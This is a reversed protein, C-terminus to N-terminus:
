NLICYFVDVEVIHTCVCHVQCTYKQVVETKINIFPFKFSICNVEADIVTHGNDMTWQLHNTKDMTWQGSYTIPKTWQGNDVTPSRNQGNDVTWQGNDVTISASTLQIDNLNGKIVGVTSLPCHVFGIV